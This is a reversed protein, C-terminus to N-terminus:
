DRAPDIASSGGGREGCSVAASSASSFSRLAASAATLRSKSAFRSASMAPPSAGAAAGAAEGAGSPARIAFALELEPSSITAADAGADSHSARSATCLVRGLASRIYAQWWM